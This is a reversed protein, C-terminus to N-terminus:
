AAADIATVVRTLHVQHGWACVLGQRRILRHAEWLCHRMPCPIKHRQHCPDKHDAQFPDNHHEQCPSVMYHHWSPAKHHQLDLRRCKKSTQGRAAAPGPAFSPM